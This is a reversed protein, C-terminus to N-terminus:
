ASSKRAYNATASRIIIFCAISLRPFTGRVGVNIQGSTDDTTTIEFVRGM